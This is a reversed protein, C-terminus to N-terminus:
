VEHLCNLSKNQSLQWLLDSTVLEVLPSFTIHKSGSLKTGVEAYHPAVQINVNNNL